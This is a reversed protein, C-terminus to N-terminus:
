PRRREGSERMKNLLLEIPFSEWWSEHQYIGTGECLLLFRTKEFTVRGHGILGKTEHAIRNAMEAWPGESECAKKDAECATQRLALIKEYESETIDSM